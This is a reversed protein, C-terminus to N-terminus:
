SRDCHQDIKHHLMRDEDVPGNYHSRATDPKAARGFADKFDEGIGFNSREGLFVAFDDDRFCDSAIFPLPQLM